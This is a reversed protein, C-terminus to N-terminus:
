AGEEIEEIEHEIRRLPTLLRRLLFALAGLLLVMLLGFWGFLQGRFRNLQAYYPELDEAVSYVFTRTM